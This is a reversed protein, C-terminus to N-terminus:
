SAPPITVVLGYDGLCKKAAAQIEEKTVGLVRTPFYQDFDRGLGMAENWALWHAQDRTREQRLAFRGIVYARARALEADTPPATLLQRYQELLLAKVPEILGEAQETRPDRRFPPSLVYGVLHSQLRLPQYFSGLEYGLSQKERINAFLRARKGGGVIADLLAFVPYEGRTAAPAPFGVMVQAMPGVRQILDVRPGGLPEPAPPPGMPEPRFPVDAFSKQALTIARASDVDGVIAVVMRNQTYYNRWFTRVHNPQIRDLTETYGNIARGYPGTPHLQNTLSQYSAGTFDDAVSAARRKLEDRAATIDQDLFRPHAVVDAILKLAAEFQSRSAVVSIETFDFGPQSRLSGGANMVATGFTDGPYSTTGRILAEATLAALGGLPETEEPLGARVLCVISVIESSDNSRCLLKLGNSLIASRVPPRGRPPM